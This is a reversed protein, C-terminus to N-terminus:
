IGLAFETEEVPTAGREIAMEVAREDKMLFFRHGRREWNAVSDRLIRAHEAYKETVVCYPGPDDVVAPEYHAERLRDRVEDFEDVPVSFRYDDDDYYERLARFVDERDFYRSFVYRDDLRFVDIREPEVDFRPM